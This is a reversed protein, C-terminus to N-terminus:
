RVVVVAGSVTVGEVQVVYIYVGSDVMRGNARGYWIESTDGPNVPLNAVSHGRADYITVTGAADRPNSFRFAVNDNRGDGNPTLFRNSVGTFVFGRPRVGAGSAAVAMLGLLFALRPLPLIM